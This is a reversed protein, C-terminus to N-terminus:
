KRYFIILLLGLWVILLTITLKEDNHKETLMRLNHLITTELPDYRAAPWAFPLKKNNNHRKSGTKM